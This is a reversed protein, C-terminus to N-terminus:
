LTCTPSCGDGALTNGDDCKSNVAYGDGCIDQCVNNTDM